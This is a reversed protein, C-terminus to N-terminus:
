LGQVVPPTIEKTSSNRQYEGIYLTNNDMTNDIVYEHKAENEIHWKELHLRKTDLSFPGSKSRDHSHNKKQRYFYNLYFKHELDSQKVIAVDYGRKCVGFALIASKYTSIHTNPGCNNSALFM